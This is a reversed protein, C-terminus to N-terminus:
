RGFRPRVFEDEFVTLVAAAPTRTPPTYLVPIEAVRFPGTADLREPVAELFYLLVRNLGAESGDDLPLTEMLRINRVTYTLCERERVVVRIAEVVDSDPLPFDTEDIQVRLFRGTEGQSEAWSSSPLLLGAPDVMEGPEPDIPVVPGPMPDSGDQWSLTRNRADWRLAGVGATTGESADLTTARLEIPNLVALESVVGEDLIESRLGNALHSGLDTSRPDSRQRLEDGNSVGDGDADTEADANLYDTQGIVELLDPMGDGDSDMLTGETGILAEDCDYLGDLDQDVFPDLGACSVPEDMALPDFGVLVEVLDGIGDGDSDRTTPSTQLTAEEDDPLGDTDSDVKPGLPTPHAHPNAILLTKVRLAQRAGLLNLASPSLGSVADFRQYTGRGTTALERLIDEAQTNRRAEQEAALHLVHFRLGVAGADRIATQMAAVERIELEQQCSLSPGPGQGLCAADDPECCDLQDAIPDARAAAIFLVVYQTAVRIGAPTNELDGEILARTARLAEVPDRCLSGADCPLPLGLTNLGALLEGPNRSFDEEFPALREARGGYGIVAASVDEDALASRVFASLVGIRTSGPDYSAFLEGAARDGTIIVRVPLRADLPDETCIRGTLAVRDAQGLGRDDSFLSADTCGLALALPALALARWTM